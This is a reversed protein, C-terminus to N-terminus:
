GIIRVAPGHGLAMMRIDLAKIAELCAQRGEPWPISAPLIEQFESMKGEVLPQEPQGRRIFLDSTFLVKDTEEYAILGEWLHM